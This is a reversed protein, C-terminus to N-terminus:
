LLLLPLCFSVPVLSAQYLPPRVVIADHTKLTLTSITGTPGQCTVIGNNVLVPTHNHPVDTVVAEMVMDGNDACPSLVHHDALMPLPCDLLFYKASETDCVGKVEMMGLQTICPGSITLPSHLYTNFTSCVCVVPVALSGRQSTLAAVTTSSVVLLLLVGTTQRSSSM